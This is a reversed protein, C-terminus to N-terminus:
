WPKMSRGLLHACLLRCACCSLAFLARLSYAAFQYGQEVRCTKSFQCALYAFLGFFYFAKFPFRAIINLRPLSVPSPFRAFHLFVVEVCAFFICACGPRFTNKKARM